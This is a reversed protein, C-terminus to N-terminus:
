KGKKYGELMERVTTELLIAIEQESLQCTRKAVLTALGHTFIWVKFHFKKQEETSLGTLIQGKEILEKSSEDEELFTEENMKNESMFLLQFLKPEEKAFRIYALGAGRYAKEEKLGVAIFQTYAEYAKNVVEKKLEEMTTFNHFIPQISCSLGKAVRRANLGEMGEKRVIEYATQIIAEKQIKRIPPM